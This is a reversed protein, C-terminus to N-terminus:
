GAPAQSPPASPASGSPASGSPASSARASGSPASSSPTSSVPADASPASGAPTSSSPAPAGSAAPPAPPSPAPSVTGPLSAAVTVTRCGLAVTGGPGTNMGWACIRNVGAALTLSVQFGHAGSVGYAANVDARVVPTPGWGVHRGNLDLVYGTSYAPADFDLVWGTVTATSGSVAIPDLSGIPSQSVRRSVCGLNANQGHVQNLAYVCITSLGTPLTVPIAFGHNGTGHLSANIDGRPVTTWAGAAYKGNVYARVLLPSDPVDYDFTWGTVTTVLGKQTAASIGGLPTGTLPVSRCGLTTNSGPGANLGYVCVTNPGDALQLTQSFAHNGTTHFHANIDGRYLTTVGHPLPKGNVYFGIWLQATLANPDLAWGTITLYRGHLSWASLGGVPDDSSLRGGPMLLRAEATLMGAIPAGYSGGQTLIVVAYRDGNVLGTSNFAPQGAADDGGWGQKIGAGSTASPIGFFQYTGDSGYETANHMANGLWNWVDPRHRVVNYFTAMGAATIQTGGWWGPRLPPSGLNPINLAQKVWTIVGDGGVRGYLADASADDSQTIMKYATSANWGTMQGTLLLRTAIFVKMVSESAYGSSYDGAGSFAGTSTDIVGISSRYGHQGAYSVAAAANSSTSAAAPPALAASGLLAATILGALLVLVGGGAITRSRM